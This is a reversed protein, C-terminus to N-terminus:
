HLKKRDCLSQGAAAGISAGVVSGIGWGAPGAISGITLGLGTGVAVSGLYFGIESLPPRQAKFEAFTCMHPQASKGM